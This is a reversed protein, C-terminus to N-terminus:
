SRDDHSVHDKNLHAGIPSKLTLNLMPKWIEGKLARSNFAWGFIGKREPNLSREPNLLTNKVTKGSNLLKVTIRDSRRRM